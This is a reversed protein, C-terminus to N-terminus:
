RGRLWGLDAFVLTWMSGNPLIRRQDAQAVAGVGGNLVSLRVCGSASRRLPRASHRALVRDFREFLAFPPRHHVPVGDRGLKALVDVARLRGAYVIGSFARSMVFLSEPM